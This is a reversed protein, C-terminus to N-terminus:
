RLTRPIASKRLTRASSMLTYDDVQAADAVNVESDGDNAVGTQTAVVDGDRLAVTVQVTACADASGRYTWTTECALGAVCTWGTGISEIQIFTATPASSPLASPSSSPHPSPAGSPTSSPSSSPAPM